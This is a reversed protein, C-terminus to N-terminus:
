LRYWEKSYFSARRKTQLDTATLTRRIFMRLIRWQTKLQCFVKIVPKMFGFHLFTYVYHSYCRLPCFRVFSHININHELNYEAAARDIETHHCSPNLM